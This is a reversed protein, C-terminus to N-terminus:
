GALVIRLDMNQNTEVLDVGMLMYIINTNLFYSSVCKLRTSALSQFALPLPYITLIYLPIIYVPPETHKSENM